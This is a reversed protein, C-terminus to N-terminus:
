KNNNNNDVKNKWETAGENMFDYNFAKKFPLTSLVPFRTTLLFVQNQM